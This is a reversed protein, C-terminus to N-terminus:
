NPQPHFYNIWDVRPFSKNQHLLCFSSKISINLSPFSTNFFCLCTIKFNFVLQDARLKCYDHWWRRHSMCLCQVYVLIAISLLSNYEVASALFYPCQCTNLLGMVKTFECGTKRIQHPSFWLLFHEKGCLDSLSVNATCWQVVLEIDLCWHGEWNWSLDASTSFFFTKSSSLSSSALLIARVSRITLLSQNRFFM